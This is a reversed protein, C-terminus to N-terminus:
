DDLTIIKKEQQIEAEDDEDEDEITIVEIPKVMEMIQHMERYLGKIHLIWGRCPSCVKRVSRTTVFKNSCIQCNVTQRKTQEM